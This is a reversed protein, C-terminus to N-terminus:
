FSTFNNLSLAVVRNIMISKMIIKHLRDIELNTKLGLVAQETLESKRCHYGSWTANEAPLMILEEGTLQQGLSYSETKTEFVTVCVCNFNM